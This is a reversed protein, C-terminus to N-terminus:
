EPRKASSAEGSPPRRTRSSSGATYRPEFGPSDCKATPRISSRSGVGRFDLPHRIECARDSRRDVGYAIARGLTPPNHAMSCRYRRHAMAKQTRHRPANSAPRRRTCGIMNRHLVVEVAVRWGHAFPAEWPGIPPDVQRRRVPVRDLRGGDRVVAATTMRLGLLNAAASSARTRMQQDLLRGILLFALLTVAADFYVQESGRMTQFLSMATALIVGLSIPVDMNLRRAKLASAASRFFPQGAYAVAPLAILASLWHFLTQVSREMDGGSGSWVSVSLLMINMAAFGAVGLRRM